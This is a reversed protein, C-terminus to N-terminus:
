GSKIRFVLYLLLFIFAVVGIILKYDAFSKITSDEQVSKVKVEQKGEVESETKQQDGTSLIESHNEFAWNEGTLLVSDAEGEFGNETSFTFKGKPWLVMSYVAGASDRHTTLSLTQKVAEQADKAKFQTKLISDQRSSATTKVTQKLLGCGSWGLFLWSFMLIYYGRKM